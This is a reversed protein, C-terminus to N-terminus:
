DPGEVAPNLNPRRKGLNPQKLKKLCGPEFLGDRFQGAILMPTPPSRTWITGSAAPPASRPVGGQGAVAERACRTATLRRSTVYDETAWSLLEVGPGQNGLGDTEGRDCDRNRRVM